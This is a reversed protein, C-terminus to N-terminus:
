TNRASMHYEDPHVDHGLAQLFQRHFISMNPVCAFPSSTPFLNLLGLQLTRVILGALTSGHSRFLEVRLAAARDAALGFRAVLFEDINRKLAPGIGTGGPYLTDDLDERLLPFLYNAM